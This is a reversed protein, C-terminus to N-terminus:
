EPWEITVKRGREHEAAARTFYDRLDSKAKAVLDGVVEGIGLVVGGEIKSTQEDVYQAVSRMTDRKTDEIAQRLKDVAAQTQTLEEELVCMREEIGEM